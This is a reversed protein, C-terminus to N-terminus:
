SRGTEQIATAQGEDQRGFDLTDKGDDSFTPDLDGPAAQAPAAVALYALAFVIMPASKIWLRTKARYRTM